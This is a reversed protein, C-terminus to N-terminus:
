DRCPMSSFAPVRARAYRYVSPLVSGSSMLYALDSPIPGKFTLQFDIAMWGDPNEKTFFFNDGRPLVSDM